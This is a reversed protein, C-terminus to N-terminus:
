DEGYIKKLNEIQKARRLSDEKKEKAIFEPTYRISFKRQSYHVSIFFNITIFLVISWVIMGGQTNKGKPLNDFEEKYKELVNSYDLVIYNFMIIIIGIIYMSLSSGSKPNINNIIQYYNQITFVIWLELVIIVLGARFQSFFNGFPYSTSLMMKYIKYFFYYYAKKITDM